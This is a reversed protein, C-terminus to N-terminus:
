KLAGCQLIDRLLYKIEYNEVFVSECTNKPYIAFTVGYKDEDILAPSVLSGGNNSVGRFNWSGHDGFLLIIPNADNKLIVDVLSDIVPVSKDAKSIFMAHWNKTLLGNDYIYEAERPSHGPYWTYVVNMWKETEGRSELTKKFDTFMDATSSQMKSSQIFRCANFLFFKPSFACGMPMLNHPYLYDLDNGKFTGFYASETFLANHYGDLKFHRMVPNNQGTMKIDSNYIGFGFITGFSSETSDGAANANAIVNFGKKNLYEGWSVVEQGYIEKYANKSILSDFVLIYLNKYGYQNLAHLQNVKESNRISNFYANSTSLLVLTTMSFFLFRKGSKLIYVFSAASAIAISLIFSYKLSIDLTSLAFCFVNIAVFTVVMILALFSIRKSSTRLSVQSLINLFFIEFIAVLAFIFNAFIITVADFEDFQNIIVWWLSILASGILLSSFYYAGGNNLSEILSLYIKKIATFHIM